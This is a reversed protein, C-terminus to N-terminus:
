RDWRNEPANEPDEALYELEEVSRNWPILGATRRVRSECPVITLRVRQGNALALLQPLKLVGNEYVAEMEWSTM